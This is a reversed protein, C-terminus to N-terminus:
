QRQCPHKEHLIAHFLAQQRGTQPHQRRHGKPSRQNRRAFPHAPPMAILTVGRRHMQRRNERARPQHRDKCGHQGRPLHIPQDPWLHGKGPMQGRRNQRHNQPPKIPRQQHRHTQQPRRYRREDHSAPSPWRRPKIAIVPQDRAHPQRHIRHPTPCPHRNQRQHQAIAAPTQHIQAARPHRAPNPKDSHQGDGRHRQRQQRQHGPM